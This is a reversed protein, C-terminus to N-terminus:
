PEYDIGRIGYPELVCAYRPEDVNTNVPFPWDLMAAVFHTDGNRTYGDIEASIFYQFQSSLWIKTQFTFLLRGRWYNALNEIDALNSWDSTAYLKTLAADTYIKLRLRETDACAGHLYMMLYFHKLHTSDQLTVGGARFEEDTAFTKWYTIAPFVM